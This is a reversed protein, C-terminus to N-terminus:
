SQDTKFVGIDSIMGTCASIREIAQSEQIGSRKMLFSTRSIYILCNM